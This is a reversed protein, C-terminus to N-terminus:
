ALWKLLLCMTKSFASADNTSHLEQWVDLRSTLELDEERVSGLSSTVSRDVLIAIVPCEYHGASNHWLNTYFIMQRLKAIGM